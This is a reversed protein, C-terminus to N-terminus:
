GIDTKAMQVLSDLGSIVLCGLHEAAHAFSRTYCLRAHRQTATASRCRALVHLSLAVIVEGSVERQELGERGRVRLQM